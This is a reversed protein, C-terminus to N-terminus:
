ALPSCESWSATNMYRFVFGFAYLLLLLTFWVSGDDETMVHVPRTEVHGTSSWVALIEICPGSLCVRLSFPLHSLFHFIYTSVIVLCTTYWNGVKFLELDDSKCWSIKMLQYKISLLFFHMSLIGKFISTYCWINIVTLIYVYLILLYMSEM